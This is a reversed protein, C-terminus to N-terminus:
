IRLNALTDTGLVPVKLSWADQISVIVSMRWKFINVDNPLLGGLTERKKWEQLWQYGSNKSGRL